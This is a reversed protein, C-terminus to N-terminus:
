SLRESQTASFFLDKLGKIGQRGKRQLEQFSRVVEFGVFDHQFDGQHVFLHVLMWQQTHRCSPM